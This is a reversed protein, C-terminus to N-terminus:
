ASSSSIPIDPPLKNLSTPFCIPLQTRVARVVVEVGKEISTLGILNAVWTAFTTTLETTTRFTATLKTVLFLAERGERWEQINTGKRGVFGKIEWVDGERKGIIEQIRGGDGICEWSSFVLSIGYCRCNPLCEMLHQVDEV